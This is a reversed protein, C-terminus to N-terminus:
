LNSAPVSRAQLWELLDGFVLERTEEEENLLEHLAGPYEILAKDAAGLDQFFTMGAAPSAIPDDTPLLVLTPLQIRAAEGLALRQAENSEMFWRPTAVTGFLPDAATAEQWAPDRSLLKPDIGNGVPLWPLLWGLALAAAVKIKPPRLALGLYPAVFVAGRGPLSREQLARALVLGGMSHGIWFDPRSPLLKLFDEVDDLYDSFRRVYGRRGESRGHGRLDFAFVAFGAAALAEFLREYRGLHDGYGHLFCITAKPAPPELAQWFLAIGDRALFHARQLSASSKPQDM